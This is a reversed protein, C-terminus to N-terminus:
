FATDFISESIGESLAESRLEARWKAFDSGQATSILGITLMSILWLLVPSMLCVHRSVEALWFAVNRATKQKNKIITTKSLM